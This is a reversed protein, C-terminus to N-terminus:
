TDTSEVPASSGFRLRGYLAIRENCSADCIDGFLRLRGAYRLLEERRVSFVRQCRPATMFSQLRNFMAHNPEKRLDFEGALTASCHRGTLFAHSLACKVGTYGYYVMRLGQLFQEAALSLLIAGLRREGSEICGAAHSLMARGLGMCRERDAMAQKYVVSSKLAGKTRIAANGSNYLLVGEERIMYLFYNTALHGNIYDAPLIHMSLLPESRSCTPYRKDVYEYLSFTSVRVSAGTVVLIEYGGIASCMSGGAYKGYLIIMEPSVMERIYTMIRFIDVRNKDNLSTQLTKM